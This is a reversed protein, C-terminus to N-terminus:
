EAEVMDQLMVGCLTRDRKIFIAQLPFTFILPDACLFGVNGLLINM